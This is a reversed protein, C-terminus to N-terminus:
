STVFALRKSWLDVAAYDPYNRKALTRFKLLNFDEPRSRKLIALQMALPKGDMLEHCFDGIGDCLVLQAFPKDLSQARMSGRLIEHVVLWVDYRGCFECRCVREILSQRVPAVEALLKRRRESVRRM